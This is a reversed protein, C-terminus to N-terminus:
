NCLAPPHLDLAPIVFIQAAAAWGWRLELAQAEPDLSAAAEQTRPLHYEPRPESDWRPRHSVRVAGPGECDALFRAEERPALVLM